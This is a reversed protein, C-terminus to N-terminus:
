VSGTRIAYIAALVFVIGVIAMLIQAGYKELFTSDDPWQVGETELVPAFLSNDTKMDIDALHTAGFRSSVDQSMSVKTTSGAMLCNRADSSNWTADVGYWKGEDEVVNWYGTATVGDTSKMVQGLVTQVTLGNEKCLYTFAAAVGASSSTGTVLADHINSVKGEEDDTSKVGRLIDNIASVKDEVSGTVETMKAEVAAMADATENSETDPDDIYQEPVSLQFSVSTVAWWETTEGGVKVSVKEIAVDASVDTVPYNWMWIPFPNTLYYAALVDGVMAGAQSKAAEKGEDTMPFLVPTGIDYSISAIDKPDEMLKTFEADLATYLGKGSDSLHSMYDESSAADSDDVVATAATLVLVAMALLSLLKHSM